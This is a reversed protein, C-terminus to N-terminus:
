WWRRHARSSRLGGDSAGQTARVTHVASNPTSFDTSTSPMLEASKPAARSFAKFTYGRCRCGENMASRMHTRPAPTNIQARTPRTRRNRCRRHADDIPTYGRCTASAYRPRKADRPTTLSSTDKNCVHGNTTTDKCRGGATLRNIEYAMLFSERAPHPRPAPPPELFVCRAHTTPRM